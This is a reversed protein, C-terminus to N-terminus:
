SVELVAKRVADWQQQTLEIMLSKHNIREPNSGDIPAYFASAPKKYKPNPEDYEVNLVYRGASM